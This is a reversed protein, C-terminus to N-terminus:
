IMRKLDTHKCRSRFFHHWFSLSVSEAESRFLYLLMIISNTNHIELGNHMESETIYDGNRIVKKCNQNQFIM